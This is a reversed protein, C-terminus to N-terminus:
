YTHHGPGFLAFTHDAVVAEVSGDTSFTGGASDSVQVGGDLQLLPTFSQGEAPALGVQVIGAASFGTGGVDFTGAAYLGLGGLIQAAPVVRDELQLLRLPLSLRARRPAGQQRSSGSGFLWNHRKSM